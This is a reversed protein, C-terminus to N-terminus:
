YLRRRYEYESWTENGLDRAMIFGGDALDNAAEWIKGQSVEGNLKRDIAYIVADEDVWKGDPYRTLETLVLAELGHPIVIRPKAM